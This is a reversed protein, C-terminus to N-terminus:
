FRELVGALDGLARFYRRKVTEPHLGQLKGILTWPVGRTRERGDAKVASHAVMWLLRRDNGDPLRAVAEVVRDALDIQGATPSYRSLVADESGYAVWEPLIDPWATKYGKPGDDPMVRIVCAAAIMVRHLTDEINPQDTM